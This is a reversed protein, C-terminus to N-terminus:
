KSRLLGVGKTGRKSQVSQKMGRECAPHFTDAQPSLVAAGDCAKRAIFDRKAEQKRRQSNAVGVEVQGADGGFEAGIM